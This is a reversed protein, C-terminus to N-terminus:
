PIRLVPYMSLNSSTLELPNSATLEESTPMRHSLFIQQADFSFSLFNSCTLLGQQGHASDINRFMAPTLDVAIGAAFLQMPEDLSISFRTLSPAVYSYDRLPDMEEEKPNSSRQACIALRGIPRQPLPISSIPLTDVVLDKFMMIRLTPMSKECHPVAKEGLSLDNISLSHPSVYPAVTGSAKPSAKVKCAKKCSKLHGKRDTQRKKFQQVDESSTPGLMKLSATDGKNNVQLLDAYVAEMTMIKGGKLNREILEVRNKYKDAKVNELILDLRQNIPLPPLGQLSHIEDCLQFYKNMDGHFQLLTTDSNLWVMKLQRKAQQELRRRMESGEMHQQIVIFAEYGSQRDSPISEVM